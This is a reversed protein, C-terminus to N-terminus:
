DGENKWAMDLVSEGTREVHPQEANAEGWMFTAVNSLLPGRFLTLGPWPPSTAGPYRNYYQARVSLREGKPLRLCNFHAVRRIAEGPSLALYDETAPRAHMRCTQEVISGDAEQVELRLSGALAMLHELWLTERGANALTVELVFPAETAAACEAPLVRIQLQM